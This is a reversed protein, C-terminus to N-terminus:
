AAKPTPKRVKPQGVEFVPAVAALINKAFAQQSELLQAVLEFSEDISEALRNRDFNPAAPVDATLKEVSDTWTKLGGILNEQGLRVAELVQDQIAKTIDLANTM